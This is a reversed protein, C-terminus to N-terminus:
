VELTIHNFAGKGLPRVLCALRGSSRYATMHMGLVEADAGSLRQWRTTDGLRTPYIALLSSSPRTSRCAQRESLGRLSTIWDSAALRAPWDGRWRLRETLLWATGEDLGFFQSLRKQLLRGSSAGACVAGTAADAGEAALLSGVLVSRRDFDLM